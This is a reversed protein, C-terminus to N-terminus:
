CEGKVFQIAGTNRSRRICRDIATLAHVQVLKWSSSFMPRRVIGTSDPLSMLAIHCSDAFKTCHMLAEQSSTKPLKPYESRRWIRPLQIMRTRVYPNGVPSFPAPLFQPEVFVRSAELGMQPVDMAFPLKKFVELCDRIRPHGMIDANCITQTYVLQVSLLIGLYLRLWRSAMASLNSCGTFPASSAKNRRVSSSATPLICSRMRCKDDGCLQAANRTYFTVYQPSSCSKKDDRNM